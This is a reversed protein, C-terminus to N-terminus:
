IKERQAEHIQVLAAVVAICVVAGLILIDEISSKPLAFIWRFPFAFLLIAACGFPICAAVAGVYGSVWRCVSYVTVSLAASIIYSFGIVIFLYQWMSVDIWFVEVGTFSNVSLRYFESYVDRGTLLLILGVFVTHIMVSAIIVSILKLRAIRRGTKTSYAIPIVGSRKDSVAYFAATVIAACVAACILPLTVKEYGNNMHEPKPHYYNEGLETIRNRVTSAIQTNCDNLLASRTYTFYSSGIQGYNEKFWMWDQKTMEYMRRLTYCLTFKRYETYIEEYEPYIRGNELDSYVQQRIIQLRSNLRDIRESHEDSEVEDSKSDWLAILECCSSIGENAFVSDQRIYEDEYLREFTYPTNSLFSIIRDTQPDSLTEDVTYFKINWECIHQYKDLLASYEALSHVGNESFYENERIFKELAPYDAYKMAEIDKDDITDGYTDYFWRYLKILYQEAASDSLMRHEGTDSSYMAEFGVTIGSQSSIIIMAIFGAAVAILPLFILNRLPFLKKLEFMIIRM